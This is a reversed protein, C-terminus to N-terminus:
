WAHFVSMVLTAVFSSAFSSHSKGRDSPVDLTSKSPGSLIFSSMSRRSLCHIGPTGAETPLTPIQHHGSSPPCWDCPSPGGSGSLSRRSRPNGSLNSSVSFPELATTSQLEVTCSKEGRTLIPSSEGHKSKARCAHCDIGGTTCSQHVSSALCVSPLLSQAENDPFGDPRTEKQLSPSQVRQCRLAHPPTGIAPAIQIRALRTDSGSPPTGVRTVAFRFRSFLPLCLFDKFRRRQLRVSPVGGSLSLRRQLLSCTPRGKPRGGFSPIPRKPAWKKPNSHARQCNPPWNSSQAESIPGKKRQKPRRPTVFFMIKHFVGPPDVLFAHQKFCTNKLIQKEGFSFYVHGFICKEFHGRENTSQKEVM